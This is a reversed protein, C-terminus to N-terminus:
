TTVSTLFDTPAIHGGGGGTLFLTLIMMMAQIELVLIPETKKAEVLKTIEVDNDHIGSAWVSKKVGM